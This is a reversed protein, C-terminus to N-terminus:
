VVEQDFYKSVDIQFREKLIEIYTETDSANKHRAYTRLREKVASYELDREDDELMQRGLHTLRSHRFNHTGFDDDNEVPIGAEKGGARVSRRIRHYNQMRSNRDQFFVFEDPDDDVGDQSRHEMLAEFTEDSLTVSGSEESKSRQANIVIQQDELESGHLEEQVVDGWLLRQIDGVRGATEYMVRLFLQLEDEDLTNTHDPATEIITEIKDRSRVKSGIKEKRSRNDERKGYGQLMNDLLQANRTEAIGRVDELYNLYKRIGYETARSGVYQKMDTEAESLKSNSDIEIPQDQGKRKYISRYFGKVYATYDELTKDSDTRDKFWDHFDVIEQKLERPLGKTDEEKKNEIKDNTEEEPFLKEQLQDVRNM